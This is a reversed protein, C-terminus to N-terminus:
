SETYLCGAEAWREGFVVTFLDAGIITLMLIPFMGLAVLIQFVREVLAPLTGDNKAEAARQFFVQAISGGILSMPLRILRNGFAYYGM